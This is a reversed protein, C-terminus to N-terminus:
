WYITKLKPTTAGNEYIEFTLTDHYRLHVGSYCVQNTKFTSLTVRNGDIEENMGYSDIYIYRTDQIFSHNSLSDLDYKIVVSQGIPVNVALTANNYEKTTSLDSINPNLINRAIRLGSNFGPARSPASDPYNITSVLDGNKLLFYDLYKEFDGLEQPLGISEQFQVFNYRTSWRELLNANAVMQDLYEKSDIVGNDGFDKGFNSLFTSTSAVLESPYDRAFYFGPYTSQMLVSLAFLAGGSEDNKNLDFLDVNINPAYDFGLIGFLEATAKDKAKRFAFGEGVLNKIREHILHNFVNVNVEGSESVESYMRLTLPAPSNRGTIECYYYGTATIEVVGSALEVEGFDFAGLSNDTSVNYSKGTQNLSSDLDQLVITSGINFPGKQVKGHLEKKTLTKEEQVVVEPEKKCAITSVIILSLFLHLCKM